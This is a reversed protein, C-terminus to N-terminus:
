DRSAPDTTCGDTTHPCVITNKYTFHIQQVSFVFPFCKNVKYTGAGSVNVVTGCVSGKWQVVM